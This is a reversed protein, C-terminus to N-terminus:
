TGPVRYLRQGLPGVAVPTQGPSITWSGPVELVWTAHYKALLARRTAADTRDDHIVALEHWRWRQDRLFPDPWAPPITRAGFGPVSRIAYYDSTVVVDGPRVYPAIWSYDPWATSFHAAPGPLWSRPVAYLLHPSQIAFGALCALATVAAWARRVRGTVPGALEVALALHAPLIVAPWMRGLAYRGTLGGITVLVLATAFLLVLPDRATRRARLWLAPLAVIVMGYYAWPQEYLYHHIEDLGTVGFLAFFRYYPWILVVVLWVVAAVGLRLWTAPALTGLRVAVLAAAGIAATGFTFQHTLAIIGGLLGLGLYAPWAPPRDLTRSLWAWFVLTLGLAFTSPYAMTLPLSWLNVFGSWVRPRPGWLTLVAILAFVPAWRRPTLTRVFAHLGYLLLAVVLPGAVALVVVTSWGTLRGVFSLLVTYPTYYPSPVDADVLPHGPHTLSIRLRDITAIHMGLDGSWPHQIACAIAFLLVAGALYRYPDRGAPADGTGGGRQRPIRSRRVALLANV